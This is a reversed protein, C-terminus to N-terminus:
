PAPESVAVDDVYAAGAGSPKFCYVTATRADPGTTFDLTVARYGAGDVVTWQEDRGHRKVGLRVEGDGAPDITATLRYRTGPELGYLVQEASAPGSALRLARAGTRAHDAVVSADNWATWPALEDHEFGGNHLSV